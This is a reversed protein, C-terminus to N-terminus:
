NKSLQRFALNNTTRQIEQFFEWKRRKCNSRTWRFREILIRFGGLSIIENGQWVTLGISWLECNCSFSGNHVCFVLVYVSHLRTNTFAFWCLWEAVLLSNIWEGSRMQKCNWISDGSFWNLNLILELLFITIIPGNTPASSSERWFTSFTTIFILWVWSFAPIKYTRSDYTNFTLCTSSCGFIMYFRKRLDRHQCSFPRSSLMEIGHGLMVKCAIDFVGDFHM